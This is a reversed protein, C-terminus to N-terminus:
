EGGDAAPREQTAGPAKGTGPGTGAGTGTGTGTGTGKGADGAKGGDGSRSGAAAGDAAAGAAGDAGPDAVAYAEVSWLSYGFRTAREDGQIRVFRTDKADMRISERGGRGDRVTAATRWGRGDASVQVRYASAYADQWRLVVQGLRAPRPLAFQLWAGDEPRSSWRTRPDGDTAASAPFRPTEDGSSVAPAGRALDPGGTRPAARVTLKQEQGAFSVPIEYTGSPANRPVEVTIRATATGGRPATLREPARVTFGEPAKVTLKERVDGPRRSVIRADVAARGGTEADVVKRSLTLGAAPTDDFWPTLAHVSPAPTGAAWSLRVADARLGRARSETWGTGSLRGLRHWGEGPVHAEMSVTGAAPGPETLATVATLPRPREFPVTLSTPHATGTPPPADGRAGTWADAEAMARDLFPTLVGKGVTVPSRGIEARLARAARQASWAAPGDDRAQATLTDVAREGASGYRGLQEAWPRVEAALEPTLYRPATAMTSFATRLEKAARVFDADDGPRDRAAATARTQWFRDTLPRLYASEGGAPTWGGLGASADNGALSRLAARARPARGALDDVAADWSEAPRYGGPNWAYDAVTFLAIRSAAPQAMANALLAASGTAVAPERGTYPGLFLRNQAYDNVPYNDMTVLPHGFVERTAALQSGTITRPVVGVGTWAVEVRGALAKALAGRYATAGDQYYETPMLTLPAAGPHRAALHGALANAVKAQATAAAEPGSGFADEDADCHWESYSVDEFRLQFSRVGLAWMADVKRRLARLDNDSSLCMAQGPSLAWGLTVHNARAREALARFEAREAAPYPDRWRARRYPDDGPAYLYRNQKTRGMFDLQALRQAQTWPRGFFGEATGRVATGPWDRVAVSALERGGGPRDTVLQRLTQAAHFLGDPGAGALAVTDRGTVQGVALRYGGDPLDGRAPARLARLADEAQPGGVRIVPGAAPPAADPRVEHVTHVGADRLLARLADLTYPDTDPAATLVAEGDLPVAAALERMSQPRPWVAPPQGADAPRDPRDPTGLAPEAPTARAGPAGGLLGGLVAAALATTGAVRARAGTRSWRSGGTKRVSWM